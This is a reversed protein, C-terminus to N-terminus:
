SLLIPKISEGKELSMGCFVLACCVMFILCMCMVGDDNHLLLRRMGCLARDM